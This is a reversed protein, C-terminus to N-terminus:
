GKLVSIIKGASIFAEISGAFLILIVAVVTFLIALKKVDAKHKVYQGWLQGAFGATAFGLVEILGHQLYIPLLTSVTDYHLVTGLQIGTNFIPILTLVYYGFYSVVLNFAVVMLNHSVIFAYLDVGSRATVLALYESKPMPTTFFYGIVVGFFLTAYFSVVWLIYSRTLGVVEPELFMRVKFEAVTEGGNSLRKLVSSYRRYNYLSYATILASAVVFLGVVFTRLSLEIILWVVLIGTLAYPIETKRLETYYKVFRKVEDRSLRKSVRM